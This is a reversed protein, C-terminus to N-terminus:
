QFSLLVWILGEGDDLPELAVGLLSGPAYFQTGNVEIQRAKGALGAASASLGDGAAIVGEAASAKIQTLTGRTAVAMLGGSPIAEETTGPDELGMDAKPPVGEVVVGVLLSDAQERSLKSAVLLPRKGAIVTDAAQLGSLIVLDGPALTEGGNNVALYAITCGTCTGDVFLDDNTRIDSGNNSFATTRVGYGADMASGDQGFLGYHWGAVSYAHV